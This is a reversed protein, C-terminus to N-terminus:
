RNTEPTTYTVCPILGARMAAARQDHLRKSRNAESVIDRPAVSALDARAEGSTLGFTSQVRKRMVRGQGATRAVHAAEGSRGRTGQRRRAM